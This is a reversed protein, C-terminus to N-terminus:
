SFKEKLLDLDPQTRPYANKDPFYTIEENPLINSISYTSKVNENGPVRVTHSSNGIMEQGEDSLM